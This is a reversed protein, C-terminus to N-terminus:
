LEWTCMLPHLVTRLGISSPSTRLGLPHLVTRLGLPHLVTRLGLPHLVTSFWLPLIDTEETEPSPPCNSLWLPHLVTRLRWHISSLEWDWPISSLESFSPISFLESTGSSPPCSCSLWDSSLWLVKWQWQPRGDPCIYVDWLCMGMLYHQKHTYSCQILTLHIATYCNLLVNVLHIRPYESPVFWSWSRINIGSDVKEQKWTFFSVYYLIM